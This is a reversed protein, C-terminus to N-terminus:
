GELDQADERLLSTVMRLNGTRLDLLLDKREMRQMRQIVTRGSDWVAVSNYFVYSNSVYMVCISFSLPKATKYGAGFYAVTYPNIYEAAHKASLLDGVKPDKVDAVM